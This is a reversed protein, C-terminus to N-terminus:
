LEIGAFVKKEELERLEGFGSQLHHKRAYFRLEPLRRLSCVPSLLIFNQNHHSLFYESLFIEGKRKVTM